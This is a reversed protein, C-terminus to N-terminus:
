LMEAVQREIEDKQLPSYRYPRVNPPTAGPELHIAHDFTRHPPLTTPEQFVDVFEDLLAQVQPPVPEKTESASEATHIVALAWVENGQIWKSLQEARIETLVPETPAHVGQLKINTSGHRFELTKLGWHCNMPSFQALWDVGLVADYAGLILLCMDTAFTNGQCWWQLQAVQQNSQLTDGNAVRVTVLEADQVQCGARRAFESNVFTHTSGSDVLLLMVQNGVLARLRITETSETGAVAHVSIHYCAAADESRDDLLELARIAEDSLLEGHTGVEITLLQGVKNCKHERMYKDGCKFCLGNARRFEWLQWERGFDDPGRKAGDIRPQAPPPALAPVPAPPIARAYVLPRGRPRNNDTEEEQIRALAAARSVSTPAHQRM